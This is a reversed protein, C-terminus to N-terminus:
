SELQDALTNRQVKGTPGKPIEDLVTFRDPVKFAALLGGCHSRLERQDLAGNTVVAAHVVEGYKPDPAGYAVAEAVAPHLLLAEDIERPAIKEGGRNIMEKIRGVISLYGGETLTGLDGTRFWGDRFSAANAKPNDVYGDIVGPGRVVIEGVDDAALEGWSEDVVAVDTGAAVGVSGPQREAPPLPNSTMQHSAETMGYAEILPLELMSEFSHVLERPLASSSTRGFRLAAPARGELRPLLRAMITPVASVWTVNNQELDPAFRSPAVRRPVVVTGGSCLTSFVVGVLGHIHFLPMVCYTSDSQDLRYFDAINRASAALNRQKIPVSKPKSTTGSTHLLLCVDEASPLAPSPSDSSVGVLEALPARGVEIVRVGLEACAEVSARSSEGEDVLLLRPKLDMCAAATERATLGPNLPAAAAGLRAIGLFASVLEPGNPLILAVADGRDVGLAVLQRAILDASGLLDEYSVHLADGPELVATQPGAHEAFVELLTLM